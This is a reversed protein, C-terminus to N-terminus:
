VRSVIEGYGIKCVQIYTVPESMLHPPIFLSGIGSADVTINKCSESVCVRVLEGEAPTDDPRLAKVQLLYPLGPMYYKETSILSIRLYSDKIQVEATTTMEIDTGEETFMATAILPQWINGILTTNVTINTCGTFIKDTAFLENNKRIDNEDFHWYYMQKELRFVVVGTVPQGYTYEACIRFVIESDSRLVYPPPQVTVSFRPLVYTEVKFLQSTKRGETNVFIEYEGEDVEAALPFHLQVIGQVNAINNWQILRSGGPSTIWVETINEYSVLVSTGVITLIRFQVVQGPMYLYKDTQVFTQVVSVVGINLTESVNATGVTGVVSLSATSALAQPVTLNLCIHTGRAIQVTGTMPVVTKATLSLEVVLHLPRLVSSQLQTVRYKPPEKAELERVYVPKVLTAKLSGIKEWAM